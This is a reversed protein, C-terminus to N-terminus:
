HAREPKGHRVDDLDAVTRRLLDLSRSVLQERKDLQVRMARLHGRELTLAHLVARADIAASYLRPDDMCPM